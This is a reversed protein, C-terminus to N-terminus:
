EPNTCHGMGFYPVCASYLCVATYFFPLLSLCPIIIFAISTTYTSSFESPRFQSLLDRTSVWNCFAGTPGRHGLIAPQLKSIIPLHTCHRRRFTTDERLSLRANERSPWCGSSLSRKSLCEAVCVSAVVVFLWAAVAVRVSQRTRPPPSRASFGIKM